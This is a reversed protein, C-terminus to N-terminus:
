PALGEVPLPPSGQRDNVILGAWRIPGNDVATITARFVLGQYVGSGEACMARSMVVHGDQLSNTGQWYGDWAGGINGLRFSGWLRGTKNTLWIGSCTVTGAGMVRPDSARILANASANLMLQNTGDDLATGFNVWTAVETATFPTERGPTAFATLALAAAYGVPIAKAMKRWSRMYSLSPKM